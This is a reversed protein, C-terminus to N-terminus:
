EPVREGASAIVVAPRAANLRMENKFIDYVFFVALFQSFPYLFSLLVMFGQHIAMKKVLARKSPMYDNYALSFLPLYWLIFQLNSVNFFTLFIMVNLLVRTRFSVRKFYFFIDSAVLAIITVIPAIPSYFGVFAAVFPPNTIDLHLVERLGDFITLMTRTAQSIFPQILTTIQVHALMIGALVIGVGGAILVLRRLMTKRESIFYPILLVLGVFKISTILGIMVLAIADKLIPNGKKLELLLVFNLVLFEIVTDFLGRYVCVGCLAPNFLIYACTLVERKGFEGRKSLLRYVQYSTAVHFGLFVVKPLWYNIKFIWSFFVLFGIPYASDPPITGQLFKDWYYVYFLTYDDHTMWVIDIFFSAVLSIYFAIRFQRMGKASVPEQVIDLRRDFWGHNRSRQSVM